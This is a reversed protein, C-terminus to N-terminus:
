DDLLSMLAEFEPDPLESLQSQLQHLQSQLAEAVYPMNFQQAIRLQNEKINIQRLLNDKVHTSDHYQAIM